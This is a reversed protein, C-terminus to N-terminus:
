KAGAGAVKKGAKRRIIEGQYRIGKGKYPEAKKFARIKAAVLGVLEKDVGFVTIVNKSVSIKIGHPPQFKIPHSLGLHLVLVEGELGVRFGVGEVELSKEWGRSVGLVANYVLARMTGWNARSQKLNNQFASFIIEKDKIVVEIYPLINLSISGKEGSVNLVNGNKEIKVGEPIIISKKGIKSM